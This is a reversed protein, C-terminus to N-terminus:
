GSRRDFHDPALLQADDLLQKKTFQKGSWKAAAFGDDSKKLVTKGDKAYRVSFMPGGTLVGSAAELSDAETKVIEAAETRAATMM